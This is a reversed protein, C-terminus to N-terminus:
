VGGLIIDGVGAALACATDHVSTGKSCGTGLAASLPGGKAIEQTGRWLAVSGVRTGANMSARARWLVLFLQPFATEAGSHVRCVILM